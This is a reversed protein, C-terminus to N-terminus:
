KSSEAMKRIENMASTTHIALNRIEKAVVAFGRGAEGARAAQITANMSLVNIQLGIESITDAINLIQHMNQKNSQEHAQHLVLATREDSIDRIAGASSIAVGATNRLTNCRERFWVYGRKATMLRYEVLYPTTGTKDNIHANYAKTINDLDDAHLAKLWSDWGNPFDQVRHYGLLSRYQNSWQMSNSPHAPDGDVLNLVWIGETIASNALEIDALKQRLSSLESLIQEKETESYDTHNNKMM